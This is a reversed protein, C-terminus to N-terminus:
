PKIVAVSPPGISTLPPAAPPTTHDTRGAALVGAAAGGSVLALAAIWKRRSSRAKAVGSNAAAIYQNSLVGARAQEKSAVIRIQFPGPIRNVRIGRLSVQGRADTLATDTRMRNSFTGSPGDEPLHFSVSAGAVPRGADDTVRVILPVAIRGGPAHVAGEGSVIQIQLIAVQATATCSLAFALATALRPRRM